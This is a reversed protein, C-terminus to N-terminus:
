MGSLGCAYWRCGTHENTSPSGCFRQRPRTSTSDHELPSVVMGVRYRVVVNRRPHDALQRVVSSCSPKRSEWGHSAASSCSRPLVDRVLDAEFPKATARRGAAGRGGYRAPLCSTHLVRLQCSRGVRWGRQLSVHIGCRRSPRLSQGFSERASCHRARIVACWRRCM